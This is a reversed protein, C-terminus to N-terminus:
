RGETPLSETETDLWACMGMFSLMHRSRQVGLLLFILGLLCGLVLCAIEPLTWPEAVSAPALFPAGLACLLAPSGTHRLSQLWARLNVEASSSLETGM